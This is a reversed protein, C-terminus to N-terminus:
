ETSDGFEVWTNPEISYEWRAQHMAQDISEHFTDTLEEGDKDLRILYFGNEGLQIIRLEVPIETLRNGKVYHVTGRTPAFGVESKAAFLIQGDM